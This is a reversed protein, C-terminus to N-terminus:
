HPPDGHAGQGQQGHQQSQKAVESLEETCTTRTTEKARETPPAEEFDTAEKINARAQAAKERAM